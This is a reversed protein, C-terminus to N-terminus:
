RSHYQTSESLSVISFAAVGQLPDPNLLVTMTGGILVISLCLLVSLMSTILHAYYWTNDDVKAISKIEQRVSPATRNLKKYSTITTLKFGLILRFDSVM